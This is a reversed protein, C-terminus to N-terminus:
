GGAAKMGNGDGSGDIIRLRPHQSVRWTLLFKKVGYGGLCLGVLLFPIAGWIATMDQQAVGGMLLGVGTVALLGAVVIVANGAMSRLEPNEWWRKNNDESAAALPVMWLQREM